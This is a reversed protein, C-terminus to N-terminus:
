DKWCCCELRGVGASSRDSPPRHGMWIPRHWCCSESSSHAGPRRSQQPQHATGTTEWCLVPM